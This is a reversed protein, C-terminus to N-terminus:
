NGRGLEQIGRLTKGELSSLQSRLAEMDRRIEKQETKLDQIQDRQNEISAVARIVTNNLESLKNYVGIGVLLAMAGLSAWVWNILSTVRKDGYSQTVSAGTDSEAARIMAARQRDIRMEELEFNNDNM